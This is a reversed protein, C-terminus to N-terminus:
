FWRQMGINLGSLNYKQVFNSAGNSFSNPFIRFNPNTFIAWRDNFHYRLQLGFYYSLQVNSKFWDSQNTDLNLFSSSSQFILGSTKMKLNVFVGAQLGLSFNNKRKNWGIIIPIDLMRYKNYYVKNHRFIKESVRDGYIPISDQNLNLQYAVVGNVVSDRQIFDGSFEFKENIQTYNLGTSISLFPKPSYTGLITSSFGVRMSETQDRWDNIGLSDGIPSSLTRETIFGGSVIGISFQSLKNKPLILQTSDEKGSADLKKQKKFSSKLNIPLIVIEKELLFYVRPLDTLTNNKSELIEEGKESIENGELLKGIIVETKTFPNLSSKSNVNTLKIKPSFSTSSNSSDIAKVEKKGFNHQITKSQITKTKDAKMKPSSSYKENEFEISPNVTSNKHDTIETHNVNSFSNFSVFYSGGMIGLSLLSFFIWFPFIRKKKEKENIKDVESEISSWFSDVDLESEYNSFGKKLNKDFDKNNM